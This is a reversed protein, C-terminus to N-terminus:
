TEPAPLRFFHRPDNQNYPIKVQYIQVETGLWVSTINSEVKLKKFKTVRYEAYKFRSEHTRYYFCLFDTFQFLPMSPVQGLPPGLIPVLISKTTSHIFHIGRGM